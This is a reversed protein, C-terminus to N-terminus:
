CPLYEAVHGTDDALVRLLEVTEEFGSMRFEPSSVISSALALPMIRGPANWSAAANLLYPL